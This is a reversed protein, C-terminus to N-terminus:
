VKEAIAYFSSNLDNGSVFPNRWMEPKDEFYQWFIDSYFYHLHKRNHWPRWYVQNDMGPLYLFLVGGKKLKSHWHELAGVWDPLHELCHSSVIWDVHLAPLNMADHTPDINPDILIAGPMSWEARNCGIDYGVNGKCVQQAFPLAFQFAFGDAQFAPYNNNKFEITEIM